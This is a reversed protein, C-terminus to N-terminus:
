GTNGNISLYKEIYSEAPNDLREIDHFYGATTEISRHSAMARAQTIDAGGLICFTIATHRLSHPKIEDRVISAQTFLNRIISRVTQTTLRQSYNRDSCSTFLPDDKKVMGDRKFLYEDIMQKVRPELIVFENKLDHGKSQYYLLFRGNKVQMDEVNVGVISIDRLGTFLKLYLIAKNRCSEVTRDFPLSLLRLVEDRTLSDRKSKPKKLGRISKAPNFPIRKQNVLYDFFGKLATLYLSITYPSLARLVLYRKYQLILHINPDRPETDYFRVWEKLAKQYAQKTTEKRDLNEVFLQIHSEWSHISSLENM